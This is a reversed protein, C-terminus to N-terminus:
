DYAPNLPFGISKCEMYESSLTEPSLFVHLNDVIDDRMGFRVADCLRSAIKQVGSFGYLCERRRRRSM